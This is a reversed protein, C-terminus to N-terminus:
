RFFAQWCRWHLHLLAQLQKWIFLMNEHNEMLYQVVSCYHDEEGGHLMEFIITKDRKLLIKDELQQKPKPADQSSIESKTDYKLNRRTTHSTVIIESSKILLFQHETKVTIIMLIIFAGRGNWSSIYQLPKLGCHIITTQNQSYLWLYVWTRPCGGFILRNGGDLRHKEKWLIFM